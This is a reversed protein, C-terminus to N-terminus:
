LKKGHRIEMFERNVDEPTLGKEKMTKQMIMRAHAIPSMSSRKNEVVIGGVIKNSIVKLKGINIKEHKYNYNIKYKLKNKKDSVGIVM